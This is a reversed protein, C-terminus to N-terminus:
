AKKFLQIAEEVSAVPEMVQISDGGVRKVQSAKIGAELEVMYKKKFPTETYLQLVEQMLPVVDQTVTKADKGDVILAYEKTNVKQVAEKFQRVIESAEFVKIFGSAHSVIVKDTTNLTVGYNLNSMM